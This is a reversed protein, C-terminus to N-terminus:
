GVAAHVILAPRVPLQANTPWSVPRVLLAAPYIAPTAHAQGITLSDLARELLARDIRGDGLGRYALAEAGGAGAELRTV